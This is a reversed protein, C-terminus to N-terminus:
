FQDASVVEGGGRTAVARWAAIAVTDKVFQVHGDLFLANVGGPHYSRAAFRGAFNGSLCDPTRSNPTLYHNFTAFPYSGRSWERGRQGGFITLGGCFADTVANGTPGQLNQTRPNIAASGALGTADTGSGKTIEGFAATFSLGDTVDRFATASRDFFAGDVGAGDQPRFSGNNQLGTGSVAAYNTTGLAPDLRDQKPDSPCLFTNVVQRVSTANDVGSPFGEYPISPSNYNITNYLNGGEIYPLISSLSSWLLAGSSRGAPLVANVSEYNHLALGIQKLNNTCQMRRAAERAAQVAPLLLAILVAIIAIVVLLEILTFARPRPRM